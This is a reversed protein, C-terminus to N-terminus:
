QLLLDWFHCGYRLRTHRAHMIDMIDMIDM